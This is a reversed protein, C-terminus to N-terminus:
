LGPNIAPWYYWSTMTLNPEYRELWGLWSEYQGLTERPGIAAYTDPAMESCYLQRHVTRAWQAMSAAKWLDSQYDYCHFSLATARWPRTQGAWWAQKLWWDLAGEGFVRWVRPWWAALYGAAAAFDKRYEAPQVGAMDPENGVAVWDTFRGVQAMAGGVFWAVQAPTPHTGIVRDWQLALYTRYGAAHAAQFCVAIDAWNGNWRGDNWIMDPGGVVVRIVNAGHSRAYGIALAPNSPSLACGDQKDATMWAARASPVPSVCLITVLSVVACVAFRRATM